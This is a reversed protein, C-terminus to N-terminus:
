QINYNYDFRSNSKCWILFNQSFSNNVTVVQSIESIYESSTYDTIKNVFNATNLVGFSASLITTNVENTILSNNYINITSTYNVTTGIPSSTKNSTPSVVTLTEFKSSQIDVKKYTLNAVTNNTSSIEINYLNTLTSNVILQKIIKQKLGTNSHTINSNTRISSRIDLKEITYNNVQKEISEYQITLRTDNPLMTGNWYPNITKSYKIYSKSETNQPDCSSSSDISCINSEKFGIEKNILVTLTYNNLVYTEGYLSESTKTETHTINLKSQNMQNEIYGDFVSEHIM